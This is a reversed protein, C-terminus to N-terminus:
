SPSDLVPLLAHTSRLGLAQIRTNVREVAAGSKARTFLCVEQIM